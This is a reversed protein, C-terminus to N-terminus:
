GDRAGATRYLRDLEQAFREHIKRRSLKGTSTRLGNEVTFRESRVFDLVRQHPQLGPNIRALEEHLESDSVSADVPAIVAVLYPRGQGYVICDAIQRSSRLREEVSNPFVKLGSQLAIADKVRGQLFLFGDADLYGVDGTAVRDGDLYVPDAADRGRLYGKNAHYRSRVIVQGEEDFVIEQGPFPKGVSGLRSCGPYNKAIMGTETMGYGEYVPVGERAYFELTARSIPASGTWLCRLRGGWLERFSAQPNAQLKRQQLAYLSELLQPVGILVTPKEARLVAMAQELRGFCVSAGALISLQVLFRQLYVSLPTLVLFTDEPGLQFMRQIHLAMHDFHLVRAEVAKTQASTGSTFKVTYPEEPQFRHPTLAAPGEPLDRLAGFSVCRERSAPLDTFLLRLRYDAMVEELPWEQKRDFPVSVCGLAICALDVLLWEYSNPGLVGVRDDPRAGEQELYRVVRAVDRYVEALPRVVRAGGLSLVLQGAGERLCELVHNLEFGEQLSM